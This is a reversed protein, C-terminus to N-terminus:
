KQTTTMNILKSKIEKANTWSLKNTYELGIRAPSKTLREITSPAPTFFYYRRGGEVRLLFPLATNYHNDSSCLKMWSLRFDPEASTWIKGTAHRLNVIALIESLPGPHFYPLIGKTPLGYWLFLEDNDDDDDDDDWAEPSIVQCSKLNVWIIIIPGFIKIIIENNQKRWYKRTIFDNIKM